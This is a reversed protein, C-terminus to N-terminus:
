TLDLVLFNIRFSFFFLIEVIKEFFYLNKFIESNKMYKNNYKIFIEINELINKSFYGKIVRFLGLEFALIFLGLYGCYFRGKNAGRPVRLCGAILPLELPRFTGEVMAQFPSPPWM